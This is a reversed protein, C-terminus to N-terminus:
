YPRYTDNIRQQNIEEERELYEDVRQECILRNNGSLNECVKYRASFDPGNDQINSLLYIIFIFAGSSLILILIKNQNIWNEM